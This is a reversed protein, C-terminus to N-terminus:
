QDVKAVIGLEVVLSNDALVQGQNAENTHNTENTTERRAKGKHGFAEIAEDDAAAVVAEHRSRIQGFRPFFDAHEFAPM